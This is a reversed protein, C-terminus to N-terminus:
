LSLFLGRAFQFQILLVCAFTELPLTPGINWHKIRIKGNHFWPLKKLKALYSFMGVVWIRSSILSLLLNKEFEVISKHCLLVFARTIALKVKKEWFSRQVTQLGENKMLYRFEGNFFVQTLYPSSQIKGNNFLGNWTQMPCIWFNRSPVV